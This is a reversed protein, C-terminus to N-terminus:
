RPAHAGRTVASQLNEILSDQHIKIQLRDNINNWDLDKASILTRLKTPDISLENNLSPQQLVHSHHSIDFPPVNETSESINSDAQVEDINLNDNFSTSKSWDPIVDDFLRRIWQIM